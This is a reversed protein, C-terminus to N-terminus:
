NTLRPRVSRCLPRPVPKTRKCRTFRQLFFSKLRKRLSICFVFFSFFLCVERRLGEVVSQLGELSQFGADTVLLKFRSLEDKHQTAETETHVGAQAATQMRAVKAKLATAEERAVRLARESEELYALKTKAIEVIGSKAPAGRTQQLKAELDVVTKKLQANDETERSLRARLIEMQALLDARSAQAAQSSSDRGIHTLWLSHACFSACRLSTLKSVNELALQAHKTALASDRLQAAMMAAQQEFVRAAINSTPATNGTRPAVAPEDVKPAAAKEASM